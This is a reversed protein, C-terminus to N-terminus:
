LADLSFTYTVTITDGSTVNRDGPAAFDAASFLIGTTGGRTNNAVLFAGGITATANINFVAPSASNTIVSPDATSAAAFACAPRTANNYPTIESWGPRSAMTDGAAPNNSAAPGYLGLFWTATYGSGLFYTDNMHKVGGNMVLNSSEASWKLNGQEDRCEVTFVGGGAVRQADDCGRQVSATVTEASSAKAQMM